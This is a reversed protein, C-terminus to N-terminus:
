SIVYLVILLITMVPATRRVIDMPSVGAVGAVLILGGCLPSMQRGLGGAIAALMGLSPITMGFEAAHPTVAENFAFAAADGSGTILGLLFPGLSGGLKAVAQAHKLFDVLQDIVGAARLGAAFVGAAIIIGMIKAYGSGMGDFFKKTIEAPNARTVLFCYITGILMATAVSVKLEKFWISCVVLIVVPLLPTIGRLVSPHEPLEVKGGAGGLALNAEMEEKTQHKNYDKYVVCVVTLLIITLFGLILLRNANLGILDMVDMNAMKAIFANHSVGPNFFAFTSIPAVVVAGAVAPKFGARILLPIITPAVAASCGATSPLAISVLATVLGCAPLLFIGIKKLPKTLLGVLHVDCGTLKVVAAFGMASCIAIILNPNTMSKDFQHFAVMPKLSLFAMFLGGAILVLRTEYRKVLGWIVGIVGVIAVITTFTQM